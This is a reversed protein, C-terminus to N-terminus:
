SNQIKHRTTRRTVDQTKHRNLEELVVRHHHVRRRRGDLHRCDLVHRDDHAHQSLEAVAADELLEIVRPEVDDADEADREQRQDDEVREEDVRDALRTLSTAVQSRGAVSMGHANDNGGGARRRGGVLQFSVSAWVTDGLTRRVVPFRRFITPTEENLRRVRVPRTALVSKGVSPQLTECRRRAMHFANTKGDIRSTRSVLRFGFITM